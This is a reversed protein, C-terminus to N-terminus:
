IRLRSYIIKVRRGEAFITGHTDINYWTIAWKKDIGTRIRWIYVHFISGNYLSCISVPTTVTCMHANLFTPTSVSEWSVSIKHTIISFVFRLRLNIWIVYVDNQLRFTLSRGKSTSFIENKWCKEWIIAKKLAIWQKMGGKFNSHRVWDRMFHWLPSQFCVERYSICENLRIIFPIRDEPWCKINYWKM